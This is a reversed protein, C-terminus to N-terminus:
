LKGIDADKSQPLLEKYFRRHKHHVIRNAWSRNSSLKSNKCSSMSEYAFAGNLQRQLFNAAFPEGDRTYLMKGINEDYECPYEYTNKIAILWTEEYKGFTSDFINETPQDQPYLIKIGNNRIWHVHISDDALNQHLVMSGFNVTEINKMATLQARLHMEDSSQFVFLHYVTLYGKYHNSTEPLRDSDLFILQLIHDTRDNPTWALSAPQTIDTTLWPIPHSCISATEIILQDDFTGPNHLIHATRFNGDIFLQCIFLALNYYNPINPALHSSLTMKFTTKLSSVGNKASTHM